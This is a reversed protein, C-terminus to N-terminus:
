RNKLTNCLDYIYDELSHNGDKLSNINVKRKIRARITYLSHIHTHNYLIRISEPTFGLSVLGCYSLEFKSLDPYNKMLYGMVGNNLIDAVAIIENIFEENRNKTIIIHEQFKHYFKQPSTEGYMYALESLKRLSSLRNYIAEILKVCKKGNDNTYVGVNKSLAEYQEQLKKYNTDYQTIYSEYEVRQKAISDKNYNIICIIVAILISTGLISIVILLTYQKQLSKKELAIERTRYKCELDEIINNREIKYLSDTVHIYLRSYKLAEAM